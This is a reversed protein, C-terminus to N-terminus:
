YPDYSDYSGYDRRCLAECSSRTSPTALSTVGCAERCYDTGSGDLTGGCQTAQQVVSECSRGDAGDLCADVTESATLDDDSYRFDDTCDQFCDVYLDQCEEPRTQFATIESILRDCSTANEDECADECSGYAQALCENFHDEPSQGPAPEQRLSCRQASRICRLNGSDDIGDVVHFVAGVGVAAAVMLLAVMALNVFKMVRFFSRDAAHGPGELQCKKEASRAVFYAPISFVACIVFSLVTLVITATRDPPRTSQLTPEGLPPQAMSPPPGHPTPGTPPIPSDSM